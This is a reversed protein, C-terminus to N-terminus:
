FCHRWGGLLRRPVTFSGGEWFAGEGICHVWGVRPPLGVAASHEFSPQAVAGGPDGITNSDVSSVCRDRRNRDLFRLAVTAFRTIGGVGPGERYDLGGCCAMALKTV